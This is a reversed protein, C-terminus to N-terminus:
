SEIIDCEEQRLRTRDSSSISEVTFGDLWRRFEARFYPMYPSDEPM